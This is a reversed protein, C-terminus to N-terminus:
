ENEDYQKCLVKLEEGNCILRYARRFEYKIVKFNERDMVRGLNHTIEFPDEITFLFYDRTKEDYIKNWGKETKTLFGGTRPSLVINEWDFQNAGYQKFFAALLEGVTETNAMGFDKLRESKNFFYCDYGDVDVHLDEDGIDRIQQLAPLIPPKRQQLFNIVMLLYAYSSLTGLYPENIKRQKAWYKVIFGLQRFREDIKAYEAILKTNHLPLENNFCIDCSFKRFDNYLYNEFTQEKVYTKPDEFKVIPVRARPLTRVHKM